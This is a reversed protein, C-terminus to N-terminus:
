HFNRKFGKFGSPDPGLPQRISSNHTDNPNSKLSLRSFSKRVQKVESQSKAEMETRTEIKAEQVRSQNSQVNHVRSQNKNKGGSTVKTLRKYKVDYTSQDALIVAKMSSRWNNASTENICKVAQEVSEHSEYQVIASVASKNGSNISTISNSNSGNHNNLLHGTNPPTEQDKYVRILDINEM